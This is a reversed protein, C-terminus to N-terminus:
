TWLFTLGTDAPIESADFLLELTLIEGDNGRVPYAAQYMDSAIGLINGAAAGLTAVFATLTEVGWETDFDKTAKVPSEVTFKLQPRDNTKNPAVVGYLGNLDPRPSNNECNLSIECKRIVPTWGGITLGMNMCVVPRSGVGFAAAPVATTPDNWLGVLEYKAIMPKGPELIWTINTVGSSVSHKEGKGHFADVQVVVLDTEMDAGDMTYEVSTAPVITKKMAAATYMTDDDPATGAVGSGAVEMEFSMGSHRISARPIDREGHPLQDVHDYMEGKPIDLSLNKVRHKLGGFEVVSKPIIYVM